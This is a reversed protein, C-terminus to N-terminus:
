YGGRGALGEAFRAQSQLAAERRAMEEMTHPENYAPTVYGAPVGSLQSAVAAQSQLARERNIIDALGQEYKRAAAEEAGRIMQANEAQKGVEQLRAKKLISM